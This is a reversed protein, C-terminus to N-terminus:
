CSRRRTSGTLTAVHGTFCCCVRARPQNAIRRVAVEPFRDTNEDAIKGGLDSQILIRFDFDNGAKLIAHPVAAHLIEGAIDGVVAVIAAYAQHFRGYALELFITFDVPNVQWLM